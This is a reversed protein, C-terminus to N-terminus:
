GLRLAHALEHYDAAGLAREVAVRYGEFREGDTSRQLEDVVDIREVVNLAPMMSGLLTDIEDPTVDDRLRRRLAQLQDATLADRLSAMVEVEVFRLHAFTAGTLDALDLYFQELLAWQDDLPADAIDAIAADLRSCIATLAVGDAGLRALHHAATRALVPRIVVSQQRRHMSLLRSVDRWARELADLSDPHPTASAAVNLVAGLAFRIGKHVERHISPPLGDDRRWAM